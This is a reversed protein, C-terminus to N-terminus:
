RAGDTDIVVMCKNNGPLGDVYIEPHPPASGSLTIEGRSNAPLTGTYIASANTGGADARYVTITHSSNDRNVYWAYLPKFGVSCTLKNASGALSFQLSIGDDINMLAM